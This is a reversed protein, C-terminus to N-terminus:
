RAGDRPRRNERRAIAVAVLAVGAASIRVWEPADSLVAVWVAVTAAAQAWYSFSRVQDRVPTRAYRTPDNAAERAQRAWRATLRVDWPVKARDRSMVLSVTAYGGRGSM